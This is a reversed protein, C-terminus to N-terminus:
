SIKRIKHPKPVPFPVGSSEQKIFFIISKRLECLEKRCARMRAESEGILVSWTIDQRQRNEPNVKDIPM